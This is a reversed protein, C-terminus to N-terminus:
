DKSGGSPMYGYFITGEWTVNIMEIPGFEGEEKDKVPDCDTMTAVNAQASIALLCAAFVSKFM